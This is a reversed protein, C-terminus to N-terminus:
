CNSLKNRNSNKETLMSCKMNLKQYLIYPSLHFCFVFFFHFICTQMEILRYFKESEHEFIRFTIKMFIRNSVVSFFIITSILTFCFLEILFFHLRKRNQRTSCWRLLFFIEEFGIAHLRFYSVVSEVTIGCILAIM